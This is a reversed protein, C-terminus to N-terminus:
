LLTSMGFLLKDGNDDKRGCFCYESLFDCPYLAARRFANYWVRMSVLSSYEQCANWSTSFDYLFKITVLYKTFNSM